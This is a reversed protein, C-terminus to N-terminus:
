RVVTIYGRFVKNTNDCLKVRLVYFYTGEGLGTAQWNNRYSKTRYVENGWRNIIQIDNDPFKLLNKVEWAENKNDGNPTFATPFVLNADAASADAELKGAISTCGAANTTAVSITGKRELGDATVKITKTGQGSIITFGTPVTWTYTAAPDGGTITYVLGDCPGSQDTIVPTVPVVNPTINSTVATGGVGCGNSVLVSVTGPDSGVLVKISNTNQGSVIQWNAPVSWTYADAGPVPAITYVQESTICIASPGSIAGPLAPPRNVKIKIVLPAGNSCLTNINVPIVSIESNEQATDDVKVVITSGSGTIKTFGTPLIYEFGSVGEMNDVSYTLIDGVCVERKGAALVPTTPAVCITVQSENNNTKLDLQDGIVNAKNMVQGAISPTAIITVSTEANAALNGVTWTYAGTIPDLFGQPSSGVYKLLDANLIDTITVGTAAAPGNNRVTLTYTVESGLVITPSSATKIIQLDTQPVEGANTIVEDRNNSTTPDIVDSNTVEAINKIRGAKLIQATITLVVEEQNELKSISWVHVNKSYTTGITAIPEGIIDLVEISPFTEKILINTTKDPGLNKVKVTYKLIDGVKSKNNDKSTLNEVTKTVELNASVRPIEISYEANDKLPNSDKTDSIVSVRNTVPNKPVLAQARVYIEVKDKFKLNGLGITFIRKEEDLTIQVPYPSKYTVDIVKMNDWPFNEVVQVNTAEQPGYNNVVITYTIEEGIPVIRRNGVKSISLDAEILNTLYINNDELAVSGNLALIRGGLSTGESLRIAEGTASGNNNVLFNGTLVSNAGLKGGTAAPILTGGIQFFVNKAQAGRELAIVSGPEFTFNGDIKFIFVADMLGAADLRITGSLLVDPSSFTYVGSTLQMGKNTEPPGVPFGDGIVPNFGLITAPQNKLFDYADQVSQRVNQAASNNVETVSLLVGPGAEPDFGTIAGDTVAVNGGVISADTNNLGAPALISFNQAEKLDPIKDQQAYIQFALLLFSFLLLIKKM